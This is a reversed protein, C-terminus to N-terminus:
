ALGNILSILPLFLAVVCLMVTGGILLFVLPPSVSRLLAARLQVRELFLENVTRLADPLTGQREGVRVFPVLTAPLQRRSEILDALSSGNEIGSALEGCAERVNADNVADATLRLALPLPVQYDVLVALMRSFGAAGTWSLIPGILPTSEWLRRWRAAGLLMRAAVIMAVLTLLTGLTMWKQLGEFLTTFLRSVELVGLTVPPLALEFEEFMERFVPVIWVMLFGIVLSALVLVILPYAVSGIVTWRIERLRRHHDVLEELASGLDSTRLAAAVLGAVHPPFRHSDERMAEDVAVGQEVREALQRLARAVRGNSSEDAAARLGPALPMGSGAVDVVDAVFEFSDDASLRDDRHDEV